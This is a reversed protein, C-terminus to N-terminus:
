GPICCIACRAASRHSANRFIRDQIVCFFILRKHQHLVETVQSSIWVRARVCVVGTIIEPELFQIALAAVKVSGLHNSGEEDRSLIEVSELLLACRCDTSFFAPRLKSDPRKEARTAGAKM